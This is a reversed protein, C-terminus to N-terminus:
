EMGSSIFYDVQEYMDFLTDLNVLHTNKSHHVICWYSLPLNRHYDFFEKYM